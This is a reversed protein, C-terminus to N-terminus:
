ENRLGANVRKKGALRGGWGSNRSNRLSLHRLAPRGGQRSRAHWVGTEVSVNGHRRGAGCGVSEVLEVFLASEAAGAGGLHTINRADIQGVELRTLRRDGILCAAVSIPKKWTTL